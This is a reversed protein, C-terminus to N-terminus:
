RFKNMIDKNTTLDPVAGEPLLSQYTRGNLRSRFEAKSEKVIEPHHILDYASCSIVKAVASLVKKGIESGAFKAMTWSHGALEICPVLAFNMLATPAHWSYESADTVPQSGLATPEITGSFGTEKAGMVRQVEKASEQDEESFEPLGVFHMNEEYVKSLKMNPIMDHTATIIESKVTTGTAMACGKACDDVRSLVEAALEADKMRGVIWIITNDPVVNPFSNGVDPFAYNITTASRETGPKIHERLIEISHAMLMAGDLSSRGMWPANGHSSKGSFHYKVNFYANTDSAGAKNIHAPHWDLFVDVGKFLGERAMFTKGICLEEGPTGFIKITCELKNEKLLDKLASAAMVGGMAMLNHGCGHGPASPVAPDKVNSDKKQSLGPLADYESSFGIVPKGSGYTAVFATPLGAVGREVSFENKELLATIQDAAFYEQMSLEPREWLSDSVAYFDAKNNEIWNILFKKHSIDDM